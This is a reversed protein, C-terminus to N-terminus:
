NVWYRIIGINTENHVKFSDLLISCFNFKKGKSSIKLFPLYLSPAICEPRCQYSLDHDLYLSFKYNGVYPLAIIVVFRMREKFDNIPNETIVIVKKIIKNQRLAKPLACLFVLMYVAFLKIRKFYIM